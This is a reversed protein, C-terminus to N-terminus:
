KKVPPGGVPLSPRGPFSWVAPPALACARSGGCSRRFPHTSRQHKPSEKCSLSGPVRSPTRSIHQRLARRARAEARRQKPTGRTPSPSWPAASTCGDQGRAAVRIQLGQHRPHTLRPGRTGETFIVLPSARGPGCTEAAAQAGHVKVWQTELISSHSFLGGGPYWARGRM